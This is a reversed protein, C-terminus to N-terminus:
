FEESMWWSSIETQAFEGTVSQIIKRKGVIWSNGQKGQRSPKDQVWSSSNNQSTKRGTQTSQKAKRIGTRPAYPESPSSFECRGLLLQLVQPPHAKVDRSKFERLLSGRGHLPKTQMCYDLFDPVWRLVQEAPSSTAVARVWHNILKNSQCPQYFTKLARRLILILLFDMHSPARYRELDERIQFSLQDVKLKM